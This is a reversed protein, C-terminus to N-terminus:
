ARKRKLALGAMGLLMLLGSTPEPVPSSSTATWSASAQNGFNATLAMSNNFSAKAKTAGLYYKADGLSDSTTDFVLMMLNIANASGSAYGNDVIAVGAGAVGLTSGNDKLGNMSAIVGTASTGGAMIANFAAAYDTYGALSNDILFASYSSATAGSPSFAITSASWNATAANAVVAMAVTMMAVILKKM